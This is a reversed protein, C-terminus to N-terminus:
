RVVRESQTSEDGDDDSNMMEEENAPSSCRPTAQGGVEDSIPEDSLRSQGGCRSIPVLPPPSVRNVFRSGALHAPRSIMPPPPQPPLHLPSPSRPPAAVPSLLRSPLSMLMQPSMLASPLGLHFPDLFPPLSPYRLQSALARYSMDVPYPLMAPRYAGLGGAVGRLGYSLPAPCYLPARERGGTMLGPPILFPPGQYEM